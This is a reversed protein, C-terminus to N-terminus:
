NTTETFGDLVLKAADSDIRTDFIPQHGATIRIAELYVGRGHYLQDTLYRWRLLVSGSSGALEASATLWQRGEYGSVRGPTTVDVRDGTIRFPIQRWNAGGDGSVELFVFDSGPETDYWLGFELRAAAPLAIPLTLATGSRDAMGGFWARRDTAPRVAVARAMDHAVAWRAPNTSGWDRSPHVRNTLLVVFAGTTPDGVLSTGTFGTHAFTYPTALAGAEWHQYLEFGLGHDNGPFAQNYNTLMALVSDRSLIRHERYCGGNLITQTFIALDYATSFLGAHGAVGGLAWANEDHVQGWVLGRDPQLQYEAAAIRPRLAARPNFMTDAMGLPGTIGDRVLVDLTTGTITESVLQLTLFNLDSYLYTTAAPAQPATALIAAVMEGRTAYTWLPPSPDPPLGSTHTLLQLITIDSKGQAAFDPLYTAVSDALALRGRELLQVVVTATFLKTLSALDYITDVTTAIRQDPPLPDGQHNAYLLAYGDAAFEVIVGDRGAIVTEGPYMPHGNEGTGPRLGAAADIPTRDAYAALLRAQTPTGHRLAPGTHPILERLTRGGSTTVTVQQSTM